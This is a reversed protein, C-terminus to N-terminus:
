SIFPADDATTVPLDYNADLYELVAVPVTAVLTGGAGDNVRWQDGDVPTVVIESCASYVYAAQDAISTTNLEADTPLLEVDCEPVKTIYVRVGCESCGATELSLGSHNYTVTCVTSKPIFLNGNRLDRKTRVRRGVWDRKLKPPKSTITARKESEIHEAGTSLPKEQRSQFVM